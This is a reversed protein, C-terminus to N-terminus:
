GRIWFKMLLYLVIGFIIVAGIALPMIIEFQAIMIALIDKWGIRENDALKDKDEKM